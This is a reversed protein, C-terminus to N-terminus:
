IAPHILFGERDKVPETETVSMRGKARAVMTESRDCDGLQEGWGQKKRETM